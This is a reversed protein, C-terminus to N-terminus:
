FVYASNLGSYQEASVVDSKEIALDGALAQDGATYGKGINKTFLDACGTLQLIFVLIFLKVKM